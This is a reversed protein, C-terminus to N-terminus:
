VEAAAAIEAVSVADFGRELFLEVATDSLTQRTREKKLERLGSM